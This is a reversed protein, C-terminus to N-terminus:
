IFFTHLHPHTHAHTRMYIYSVWGMFAQMKIRSGQLFPNFVNLCCIFFIWNWFSISYPNKKTLVIEIIISNLENKCCCCCCFLLVCVWECGCCHLLQYKLMKNIYVKNILKNLICKKCLMIIIYVNCLCRVFYFLVSSVEFFCHTHTHTDIM